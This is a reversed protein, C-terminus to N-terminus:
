TVSIIPVAYLIVGLLFYIFFAISVLNLKFFVFQEIARAFWFIAMFWLMTHGLKTNLLEYTHALSIYAFIIFVLILCLNIVQMIGRNVPTLKRLDKDWNFIRWFFLHFIVLLINYIGGAVILSEM